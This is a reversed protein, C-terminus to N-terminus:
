RHGHPPVARGDCGARRVHRGPQRRAVAGATPPPGGPFGNMHRLGSAAEAVSAYGGQAGRGPRGTAPSGSWSSAAIANACCTTVWTGSRWRARGSTRSSSTPREVLDLFLERGRGRAPEAHRSEQQARAGDLLLSPRGARGAGRVCRTPHARRSSRSSRPVWIASCDALSPGSILTGVEIV